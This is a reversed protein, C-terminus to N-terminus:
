YGQAEAVCAMNDSTLTDQRQFSAADTLIMAAFARKTNPDDSRRMNLCLQALGQNVGDIRRRSNSETLRSTEEAIPAAVRNVGLGLATLGVVGAIVALILGIITLTTRM